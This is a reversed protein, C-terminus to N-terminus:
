AANSARQRSALIEQCRKCGPLTEGTRFTLRAFAHTNAGEYTRVGCMAQKIKLTNYSYYDDVIHVTLSPAVIFFEM